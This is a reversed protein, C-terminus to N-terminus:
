EFKANPLLKKLREWEAKDFSNKTIYFKKVQTLKGFGDPMKTLGMESVGVATLDPQRELIAFTGVWDLDHLDNLGIIKIKKLQSLQTPLVKVPNDSINFYKLNKLKEIQSSITTIGNGDLGLSLLSSIHYVAEIDKSKLHNYRISLHHLNKLSALEPPVKSLENNDLELSDLKKFRSIAPPIFGIKNKWITIQELNPLVSLKTPFITIKNYCLNIDVLNVLDGRKLTLISIENEFLNLARIHLKKISQPIHDLKNGELSLEDLNKLAVINWPIDSLNNRGLGLSKLNKIKSLLDFAKSLDLNPNAELDIDELNRLKVIEKPLEILNSESLDLSRVKDSDKLAETVSRYITKDQAQLSASLSVLLLILIFTRM